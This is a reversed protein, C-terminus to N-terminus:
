YVHFCAEKSNMSSTEMPFVQYEPKSFVATTYVVLKELETLKGTSLCLSDLLPIGSSHKDGVSVISGRLFAEKKKWYSGNEAEGEGPEGVLSDEEEGTM